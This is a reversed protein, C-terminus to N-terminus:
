GQVEKVLWAARREDALRVADQEDSAWLGVHLEDPEVVIRSTDHWVFIYGDDDFDYIGVSKVVPQAIWESFIVRYPVVDTEVESVGGHPTAAAVLAAKAGDIYVGVIKFRLVRWIRHPSERNCRRCRTRWYASLRM